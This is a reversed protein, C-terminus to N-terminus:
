RGQQQVTSPRPLYILITLGVVSHMILLVVLTGTNTAALIPGFLSLALLASGTVRWARIGHRVTRQALALVFWAALGALIAAIAVMIFSVETTPGTPMMRVDLSNQTIAVAVAWVLAAAAGAILIVGPRARRPLGTVVDPSGTDTRTTRNRSM